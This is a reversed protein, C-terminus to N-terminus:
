AVLENRCIKLGENLANGFRGNKKLRYVHLVEGFLKQEEQLVSNLEPTLPGDCIVVFDNTPVIQNRISDMSISLFGPCEKYYVSMLVSYPTSM